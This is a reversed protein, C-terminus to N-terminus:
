EREMMEDLYKLESLYLQLTMLFKLWSIGKKDM